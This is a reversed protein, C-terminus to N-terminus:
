EEWLLIGVPTLSQASGSVPLRWRPHPYVKATPNRLKLSPKTFQPSHICHLYRLFLPTKTQDTDALFVQYNGKGIIQLVMKKEEKRDASQRERRLVMEGRDHFSDDIVPYYIGTSVGAM